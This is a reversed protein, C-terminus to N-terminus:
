SGRDWKVIVPQPDDASGPDKQNARFASTLLSLHILKLKKFDFDPGPAPVGLPWAKIRLHHKCATSLWMKWTMRTLDIDPDLADSLLKTEIALQICKSASLQDIM